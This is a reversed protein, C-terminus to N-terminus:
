SLIHAVNGEICLRCKPMCPSVFNLTFEHYGSPAGKPVFPMRSESMQLEVGLVSGDSGHGRLDFTLESPRQTCKWGRSCSCGIRVRAHDVSICRSLGTWLDLPM